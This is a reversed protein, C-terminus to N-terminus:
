SNIEIMAYEGNNKVYLVSNKSSEKNKFIIFNENKKNLKSIAENLDMQKIEYNSIIDVDPISMEETFIDIPESDQFKERTKEKHKKIQAEVKDTLLD